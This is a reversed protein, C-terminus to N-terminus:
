SSSPREIEIEVSDLVGSVPANPKRVRVKVHYIPFQKLIVTSIEEALSEILYHKQGRVCSEVSKYVSEYDVTDGLQDTKGAVELSRYLDLDVEFKGGLKKETESVGHYGYFVMNKM